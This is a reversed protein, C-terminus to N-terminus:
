NTEPIWDPSENLSLTTASENLPGRTLLFTKEVTASNCMRPMLKLSEINSNLFIQLDISASRMASDNITALFKPPLSTPITKRKSPSYKRSFRANRSSILALCPHILFEAIKAESAGHIRRIM